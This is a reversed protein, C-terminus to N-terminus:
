LKGTLRAAQSHARELKGTLRVAQSALLSHASPRQRAENSGAQSKFVEIVPKLAFLRNILRKCRQQNAAEKTHLTAVDSLTGDVVRWVGHAMGFVLAMQGPTQNGQQQSNLTCVTVRRARNIM